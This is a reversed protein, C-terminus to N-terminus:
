SADPLLWHDEEQFSSKPRCSHNYKPSIEAVLQALEQQSCRRSLQMEGNVYFNTHYVPRNPRTMLMGEKVEDDSSPRRQFRFKLPTIVPSYPLFGSLKLPPPPTPSRKPSGPPSAGNSNSSGRRMHSRWMLVTTAGATLPEYFSFSEDEIHSFMRRATADDCFRLFPLEKGCCECTEFLAPMSTNDLDFTDNGTMPMPGTAFPRSDVGFSTPFLTAM